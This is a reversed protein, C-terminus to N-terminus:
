ALKDPSLATQATSPNQNRPKTHMASALLQPAYSCLHPIDSSKWRVAHVWRVTVISRMRGKYLCYPNAHLTRRYFQLLCSCHGAPMMSSM